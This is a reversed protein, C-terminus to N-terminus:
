KQHSIKMGSMHLVFFQQRISTGSFPLQNITGREPAHTM